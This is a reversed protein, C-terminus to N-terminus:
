NLKQKKFLEPKFDIKRIKKSLIDLVSKLRFVSLLSSPYNKQIIRTQYDTKRYFYKLLESLKLKKSYFISLLKLELYEIMKFIM